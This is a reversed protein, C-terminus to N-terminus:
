QHTPNSGRSVAGVQFFGFRRRRLCTDQWRLSRTKSHAAECDEALVGDIFEAVRGVKPAANQTTPHQAAASRGHRPPRRWWKRAQWRPLSSGVIKMLVYECGYTSKVSGIDCVGSYHWTIAVTREQALYSKNRQPAFFYKHLADSLM